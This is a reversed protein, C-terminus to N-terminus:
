SSTGKGTVPHEACSRGADTSNCEPYDLDVVHLRVETTQNEVVNVIAYGPVEVTTFPANAPRAIPNGAPTAYRTTHAHHVKAHCRGDAPISNRVRPTGQWCVADIYKDAQVYYTGAEVSQASACENDLTPTKIFEPGDAVAYGRGESVCLLLTGNGTLSGNSPAAVANNVALFGSVLVTAGALVALMKSRRM